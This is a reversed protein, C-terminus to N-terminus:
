KPCSEMLFCMVVKTDFGTIWSLSTSVVNINYLNDRKITNLQIKGSKLQEIITGTDPCRFTNSKSDNSSFAIGAALFLLATIIVAITTIVLWSKKIRKNEQKEDIHLEEPRSVTFTGSTSVPHDDPTLSEYTDGASERDLTGRSETHGNHAAM